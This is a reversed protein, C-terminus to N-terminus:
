LVMVCRERPNATAAATAPIKSVAHPVVVGTAEWWDGEAPVLVAAASDGVGDEAGFAEGVGVLSGRSTIQSGLLSTRRARRSARSIAVTFPSKWCITAPWTITSFPVVSMARCWLPIAFVSPWRLPDGLATTTLGSRDWHSYM